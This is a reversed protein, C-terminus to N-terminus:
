VLDMPQLLYTTNPPLFMVKFIHILQTEM